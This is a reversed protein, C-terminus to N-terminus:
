IMTARAVNSIVPNARAAIAVSIAMATTSKGDKLIM